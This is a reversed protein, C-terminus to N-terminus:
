AGPAPNALLLVAGLRLKPSPLGSPTESRPIKSYTATPAGLSPAVPLPARVICVACRGGM